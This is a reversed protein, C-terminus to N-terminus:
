AAAQQRVEGGCHSEGDEPFCWHPQRGDLGLASVETEIRAVHYDEVMADLLDSRIFFNGFIRNCHPCGFSLYSSALTKSHRTKIAGLKIGSSSGEAALWGRVLNLVAPDFGDADEWGEATSWSLSHGCRSQQQAYYIHAPRKCNWCRYDVFSVRLRANRTASYRVKGGLLSTAFERVGFRRGALEVLAVTEKDPVLRFIPLEREAPSPTEGRYLWCGRIGVAGYRQQRFRCTEEDQPSWQVEFAVKANGRSALVDARWGDGAVETQAAWGADACARVIEAKAWLHQFTEGASSCGNARRHFFHRTGPKSVRPCAAADCCPFSLAVRKAKVEARLDDWETEDLLPAVLDRGDILARLPM